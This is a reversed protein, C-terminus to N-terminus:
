NYPVYYDLSSALEFSYCDDTYLKIHEIEKVFLAVWTVLAM